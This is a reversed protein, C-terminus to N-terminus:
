GNRRWRKLVIEGLTKPMLYTWRVNNWRGTVAFVDDESFGHKKALRVLDDKDRNIGYFQYMDEYVLEDSVDIDSDSNEGLYYERENTPEDKDKQMSFDKRILEWGDKGDWLSGLKYLYEGSDKKEKQRKEYTTVM